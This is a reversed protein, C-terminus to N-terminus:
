HGASKKSPTSVCSQADNHKKDCLPPTKKASTDSTIGEAHRIIFRACGKNTNDGVLSTDLKV